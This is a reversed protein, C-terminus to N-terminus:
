SGPFARCTACNEYLPVGHECHTPIKDGHEKLLQESPNAKCRSAGESLKGGRIESDLAELYSVDIESLGNTQKTHEGHSGTEKQQALEAEETFQSCSM